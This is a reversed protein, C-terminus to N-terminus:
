SAPHDPHGHPNMEELLTEPLVIRLDRFQLEGSRLDRLNRTVLFKANGAVGLEVLHNDAEDRLNPRWTYYVTIWQCVSLFADLLAEREPGTLQCRELVDPRHLLDEYELFLTTGMLPILQGTLCVRIFRRNVGGPGLLAAIFVSTDVVVSAVM